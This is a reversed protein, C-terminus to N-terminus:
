TSFSSVLNAIIQSLAVAGLILVGGIVAYTLAQTAQQVKQANGQATVYLFGAYIIALVVIPTAFIVIINLIAVLFDQLATPGRFALPSEVRYSLQAQSTLPLLAVLGLLSAKKLISFIYKTM